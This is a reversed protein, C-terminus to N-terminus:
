HGAIGAQRLLLQKWISIYNICIKVQSGATIFPVVKELPLKRLFWKLSQFLCYIIM